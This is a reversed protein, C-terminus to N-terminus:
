RAYKVVYKKIGFHKIYLEPPTLIPSFFTRRLYDPYPSPELAHWSTPSQLFAIFTNRKYPIKKVFTLDPPTNWCTEDSGSHASGSFFTTGVNQHEDDAPLYFILQVFYHPQDTHTIVSCRPTDLYISNTKAVPTFNNRMLEIEEQSANPFKYHLYPLFKQIIIPKIITEVLYDNFAGWFAKQNNTLKSSNLDDMAISYRQNRPPAFQHPHPWQNIFEQYFIEPFFDHIVIHPFPDEVIEIHNLQARVEQMLLPNVCKNVLLELESTFLFAHIGFFYLFIALWTTRM